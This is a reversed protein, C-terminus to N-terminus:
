SFMTLALQERRRAAATSSLFGLPVREKTRGPDERARAAFDSFEAMESWGGPYSVRTGRSETLQRYRFEISGFYRMTNRDVTEELWPVEGTVEQPERELPHGDRDKGDAKMSLSAQDDTGKM